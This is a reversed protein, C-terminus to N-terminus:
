MANKNERERLGDSADSTFNDNILECKERM